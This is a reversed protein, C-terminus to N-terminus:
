AEDAEMVDDLILFDEDNFCIREMRKVMRGMGEAKDWRKFSPSNNRVIRYYDTGHYENFAGDSDWDEHVSLEGTKCVRPTVGEVHGLGWEDWNGEVGFRAGKFSRSEEGSNRGACNEPIHWRGKGLKGGVGIIKYGRCEGGKM